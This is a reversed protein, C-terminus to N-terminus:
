RERFLKKLSKMPLWLTLPQDPLCDFEFRQYFRKAHEDKADILVAAMGISEGTRAFRHLADLLLFEGLGQGQARRDVALRALRGAPIPFKPFRKAEAPPLSAHDISGAALSYYGLIRTSRRKDVAVFTRAVGSDEHQRAFRAIYENLAGVGCDFGSRDHYRELPEVIRDSRM